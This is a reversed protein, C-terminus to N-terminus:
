LHIFKYRLLLNDHLHLGPQLLDGISTEAVLVALTESMM